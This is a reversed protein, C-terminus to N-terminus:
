KKKARKTKAAAKGFKERLLDKEEKHKLTIDLSEFAKVKPAEVKTTVPPEFSKVKPAEVKAAVLPEVAEIKPAEVKAAVLPEVAKPRLATVPLEDKQKRLNTVQNKIELLFAKREDRAIRAMNSRAKSFDALMSRVDSTLNAQFAMREERDKKEMDALKNM